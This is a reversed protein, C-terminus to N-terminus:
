YFAVHSLDHSLKMFDIKDFNLDVLNICNVSNTEPEDFGTSKASGNQRNHSHNHHHHHHHHHASSSPQPPPPPENISAEYDFNLSNNLVGVGNMLDGVTPIKVPPKFFDSIEGNFVM